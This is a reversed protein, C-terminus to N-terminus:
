PLRIIATPLSYVSCFICTLLFVYIHFLFVNSVSNFLLICFMVVMYFVIFFGFFESCQMGESCKVV